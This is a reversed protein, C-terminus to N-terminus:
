SALPRGSECLRGDGTASMRYDYRKGDVEFVLQYGPVVMQTYFMGPEPCGLAGDPWTVAGAVVLDASAAAEAGVETALMVRAADVVAPPAEGVQPSPPPEVTPRAPSSPRGTHGDTQSATAGGGAPASGAVCGALALTCVLTAVAASGARV